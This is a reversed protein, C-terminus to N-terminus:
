SATGISGLYSTTVSRWSASSGVQKPSSYSTVNGLGLQGYAGAGWTWLTGDSKIANSTPLGAIGGGNTKLWNTLAGVQTPSSRQCTTALGLGLVGLTNLGWTWLTGDSKVATSNVYGLSVSSWTNSGIQVPSSANVVTGLGLQGNSNQGWIWLTGDTKIASSHACGGASVTCWNTLAGVQKPSSYSTTNGLGLQGSSGRGWAWLTGDTKIALVTQYQVNVQKWNTLTGVQKPSSYKLTTAVNLGLQGYCGYGWAWLTGDTKIAFSVPLGIGVQKWNTLSGIQKPSSKTVVTGDGMQGNNNQGWTWLTGDTKIGSMTQNGGVSAWTNSGIKTPTNVQTISSNGAQGLCNKGWTYLHPPNCVTITGFLPFNTSTGAANSVSFSANYSGCPVGTITVSPSTSTGTYVGCCLSANFSTIPLGSAVIPLPLCATVNSLTAIRTSCRAPSSVWCGTGNGQNCPITVPTVVISVNSPNSSGQATISKATFTYSNGKYLNNVTITNGL